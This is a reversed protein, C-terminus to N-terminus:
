DTSSRATACPATASSCASRARRWCSAVGPRRAHRGPAAILRQVGGPVQRYFAYFLEGRRADIAAVILRTSFRVPFALLDLSPVGIM